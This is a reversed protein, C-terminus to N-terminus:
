EQRQIPITLILRFLDMQYFVPIHNPLKLSTLKNRMFLSTHFGSFNVIGQKFIGILRIHIKPQYIQHSSLQLLRINDFVLFFLIICEIKM